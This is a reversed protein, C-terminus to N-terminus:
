FVEPREYSYGYNVAKSVRVKIITNYQDKNPKGTIHILERVVHGVSRGEGESRTGRELDEGVEADQSLEGDVPLTAAAELLLLSLLFGGFGFGGLILYHRTAARPCGPELM